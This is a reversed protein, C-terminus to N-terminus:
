FGSQTADTYVPLAFDALPALGGNVQLDDVSTVFLSSNLVGLTIKGKLVGTPVKVVIQTPTKTVFSTVPALVGVFAVSTVLDLNTGTITLNTGPDVPNPAMGSIAPLLVDLDVSSVTKVGSAAVLTLQGKQTGSPVVV